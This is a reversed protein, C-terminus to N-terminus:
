KEKVVLNNEKLVLKNVEDLLMTQKIGEVGGYQKLVEAETKGSITVLEALLLKYEEDTIELNEAQMVAYPVLEEKILEKAYEKLGDTNKFGFYVLVEDFTMQKGFYYQSYAAYGEIESVLSSYVYNLQQEPIEVVTANKTIQTWVLKVNATKIESNVSDRVYQVFEDCTKYQDKTYEKVWGDTFNTEAIYNLKIEFVTKKGAMEQSYDKPFTINLDFTEGVKRGLIGQAFGDIFSGTGSTTITVLTDGDIYALQGNGKSSGGEFAEGKTGDDNLFYGTYDFNFIVKESISHEENRDKTFESSQALLVAIQIDIEEQTIEIQEVEIDLEKYQGLTIYKSVDEKFFDMPEYEPKPQAGGGTTTTTTTTSPFLKDSINNDTLLIFGAALVVIGLAFALITIITSKKM